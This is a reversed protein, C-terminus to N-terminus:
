QDACPSALLPTARSQAQAHAQGASASCSAARRVVAAAPQMPGFYASGHERGAALRGLGTWEKAALKQHGQRVIWGSQGIATDISHTFINFNM